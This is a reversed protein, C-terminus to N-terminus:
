CLRNLDLHVGARKLQRALQLQWGGADDVSVHTVSLPDPTPDCGDPHLVCVRKLGMKGVLLGLFFVAMRDVAGGDHLELDETVRAAAEDEAVSVLAFSVNNTKELAEVAAALDEGSRAPANLVVLDVGMESLFKKVVSGAVDEEALSILLGRAVGTPHDAPGPQPPKTLRNQPKKAAQGNSSSRGIVQIQGHGHGHGSGHGHSPAAPAHAPQTYRVPPAPPEDQAEDEAEEEAARAQPQAPAPEM